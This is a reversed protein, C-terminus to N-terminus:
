VIRKSLKTILVFIIVGGTLLWTFLSLNISNWIIVFGLSVAYFTSVTYSEKQWIRLVYSIILPYVIVGFIKFNAYADGFLGTNAIANSGDTVVLHNISTNYPSKFFLRMISERLFLAEKDKIYLYYNDAINSPVIFIRYFQTNFGYKGTFIYYYYYAIMLASIAVIFYLTLYKLSIKRKMMFGIVLYLVVILIYILLTTKLGDIGYMMMGLVFTVISFIIRKNMLFRVLFFPLIMGSIWRFTYSVISPMSRQLFDWRYSYVDDFAIYLRFNGYIGSLALAILGSLVFLVYESKKIPINRTLLEDNDCDIPVFSAGVALLNWFVTELILGEDTSAAKYIYIVFFGVGNLIFLFIYLISVVSKKWSVFLSINIITIGYLIWSIIMRSPDANESLANTYIYYVNACMYDMIAKLCILSVILIGTYKNFRLTLKSNTM